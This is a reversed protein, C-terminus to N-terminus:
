TRRQLNMRCLLALDLHGNEQSALSLRVGSPTSKDTTLIKRSSSVTPMSSNPSREPPMRSSPLRLETPSLKTPSLGVQSRTRLPSRSSVPPTSHQASKLPKAGPPKSAPQTKWEQPSPRKRPLAHPSHKRPQACEPPSPLVALPPTWGSLPSQRAPLKLTLL